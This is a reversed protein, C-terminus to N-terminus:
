LLIITDAYITGPFNDQIEDDYKIDWNNSLYKHQSPTYEVEKFVVNRWSLMFDASPYSPIENFLAFPGWNEQRAVIQGVPYITDHTKGCYSHHVGDIVTFAKIGRM